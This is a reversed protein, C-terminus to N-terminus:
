EDELLIDVVSAAADGRLLAQLENPKLFSLRGELRPRSDIETLAVLNKIPLLPSLTAYLEEVSTIETRVIKRTGRFDEEIKLLDPKQASSSAADTIFASYANWAKGPCARLKAAKRTLFFDQSQEWNKLINDASIEVSIFGFLSEDEFLIWDRENLLSTDYGAENLMKQAEYKLDM